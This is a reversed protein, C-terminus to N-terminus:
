DHKGFYKLFEDYRINDDKNIELQDIIQQLESTTMNSGIDIMVRRLEAVLVNGAENTDVAILAMKLLM